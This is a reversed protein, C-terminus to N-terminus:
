DETEDDVRDRAESAGERAESAGERVESQAESAGEQMESQIESGEQQIRNEVPDDDGDDDSCAGLLLTLALAGTLIRARRATTPRTTTPM